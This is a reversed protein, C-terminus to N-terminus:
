EEELGEHGTKPHVKANDSHYKYSSKEPLFILEHSKLAM